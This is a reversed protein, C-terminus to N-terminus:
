EQSYKEQCYLEQKGRGGGGARGRRGRAVGHAVAERPSLVEILASHKKWYNLLAGSLVIAGPYEDNQNM